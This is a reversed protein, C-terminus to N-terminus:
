NIKKMEKKMASNIFFAKVVQNSSNLVFEIQDDANTYFFKDSSEAKLEKDPSGKQYLAGNKKILIIPFANPINILKYEGVYRNLIASDIKIEKHVSPLVVEKNACIYALDSCIPIPNTQNNSLIIVTLDSDVCRIFNTLYGPAYGGHTIYNGLENKGILQGYGYYYKSTALNTPNGPPTGDIKSQPLFM